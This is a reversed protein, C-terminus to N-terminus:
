TKIEIFKKLENRNQKDVIKFKTHLNQYIDEAYDVMNLLKFQLKQM